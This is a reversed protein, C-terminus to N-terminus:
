KKKRKEIERVIEEAPFDNLHAGIKNPKTEYNFYLVTPDYILYFKRVDPAVSSGIFLDGPVKHKVNLNSIKSIQYKRTFKMGWSYKTIILEESDIIVRVKAIVWALEQIFFYCMLCFFLAPTIHYVTNTTYQKPHFLFPNLGGFILLVMALIFIQGWYKKPAITLEFNSIEM